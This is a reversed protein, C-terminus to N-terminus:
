CSRHYDDILKKLENLSHLLKFSNNYAWNFVFAYIDHFLVFKEYDIIGYSDYVTEKLKDLLQSSFINSDIEQSILSLLVVIEKEYFKDNKENM